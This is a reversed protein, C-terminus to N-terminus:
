ALLQTVFDSEASRLEIRESHIIKAVVAVHLSEAVVLCDLVVDDVHLPSLSPWRVKNPFCSEANM